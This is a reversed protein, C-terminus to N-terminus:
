TSFYNQIIAARRARSHSLLQAHNVNQLVNPVDEEQPEEELPVGFHKMLNYITCCAYVIEVAKEPAYHLVRDIGLCRLSGKLYGNTREVANRVQCHWDTYNQEPSGPEAHLVPTMLWPELPYGSDGLLFFSGIGGDYLRKMETKVNSHAWIFADHVRGPYRANVHLIRCESDAILQVNLTHAGKRVNKYQAGEPGPPPFIKVYHTCDILGLIGPVRYKEEFGAAVSRRAPESGPFHVWESFLRLYLAKLFQGLFRSVTTQAQCLSHDQGIQRQYGGNALFQVCCLVKLHVPIGQANLPELDERIQEIIFIAMPKSIRWLHQFEGDDIDFPDCIDRIRKRQIKRTERAEYISIRSNFYPVSM